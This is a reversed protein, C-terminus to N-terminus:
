FPCVYVYIYVDVWVQLFVVVPAVYSVCLHVFVPSRSM